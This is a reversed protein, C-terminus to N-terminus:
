LKPIDFAGYGVVLSHLDEPGLLSGKNRHAMRHCNSCLPCVNELASSLTREVDQSEYTHIPKLHHIEIYNRATPGYFNDFNFNCGACWLKGERSYHERALETLRRSRKRKLKQNTPIYHGEEIVLNQFDKEIVSKRETDDFGSSLLYDFDAQHESLYLLGSQTIALSGSPRGPSYTALGRSTLTNHSILNRVQQSFHSDSRSRLIELDEESLELTEQLTRIIETTTLGSVGKSALLSLVPIILDSETYTM